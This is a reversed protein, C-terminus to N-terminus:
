VILTPVDFTSLFMLMPVVVPASVMVSPSAVPASVNLKKLPTLVLPSTTSTVKADKVVFSAKSMSVAAIVVPSTNSM